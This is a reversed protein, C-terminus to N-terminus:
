LVLFPASGMGNPIEKNDSFYRADPVGGNDVASFLGAHLNVSFPATLLVGLFLGKLLFGNQTAVQNRLDFFSKLKDRFKAKSGVTKGGGVCSANEAVPVLGVGEKYVNRYIKNM